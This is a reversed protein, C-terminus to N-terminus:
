ITEGSEKHGMLVFRQNCRAWVNVSVNLIVAQTILAFVPATCVMRIGATVSVFGMVM